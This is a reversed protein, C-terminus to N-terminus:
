ENQCKKCVYQAAKFSTNTGKLKITSIILCSEKEYWQIPAFCGSCDVPETDIPSGEPPTETKYEDLGM